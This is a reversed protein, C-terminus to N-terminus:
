PTEEFEQHFGDPVKGPGNTPHRKKNRDLTRFVTELFHLRLSGSLFFNEERVEGRNPQFLSGIRNGEAASFFAQSFWTNAKM